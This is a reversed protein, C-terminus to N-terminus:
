IYVLLVSSCIPSTNILAAVAVVVAVVVVVVVVVVAVVVEVLVQAPAGAVVAVVTNCFNYYTM